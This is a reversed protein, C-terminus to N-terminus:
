HASKFHVVHKSNRQDSVKSCIMTQFRGPPSSGRAKKSSIQCIYGLSLWLIAFYTTLRLHFFFPLFKEFKAVIGTQLLSGYRDGAQRTERERTSTKPRCCQQVTFKGSFPKKYPESHCVFVVRSEILM